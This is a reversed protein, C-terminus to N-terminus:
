MRGTSEYDQVLFAVPEDLPWSSRPRSPEHASPVALEVSMPDWSSPIPPARHAPDVLLPPEAVVGHRAEQITPLVTAAKDALRHPM